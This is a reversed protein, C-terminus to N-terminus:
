GHAWYLRVSYPDLYNAHYSEGRNLRGIVFVFLNRITFHTIYKLLKKKLLLNVPLM